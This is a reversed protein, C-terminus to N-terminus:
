GYVLISEIIIFARLVELPAAIQLKIICMVLYLYRGNLFLVVVQLDSKNKILSAIWHKVDLLLQVLKSTDNNRVMLEAARIRPGQTDFSMGFTLLTTNKEM